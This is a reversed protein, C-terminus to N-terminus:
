YYGIQYYSYIFYSFSFHVCFIAIILSIDRLIHLSFKLSRTILVLWEDIYVFIDIRIFKNKKCIWSFLSQQFKLILNSCFFDPYYSRGNNNCVVLDIRVYIYIVKLEIASLLLSIFSFLARVRHLCSISRWKGVWGLGVWGVSCSLMCSTVFTLHYSTGCYNLGVVVSSM